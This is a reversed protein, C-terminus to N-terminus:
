GLRQSDSARNTCKHSGSKMLFGESQRSCQNVNIKDNAVDRILIRFCPCCPIGFREHLIVFRPHFHNRLKGGLATIVLCLLAVVARPLQRRIASSILFTTDSFKKKSQLLCFPNRCLRVGSSTCLVPLFATYVRSRSSKNYTALQRGENVQRRAWSSRV